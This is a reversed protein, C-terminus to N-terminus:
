PWSFYCVQTCVGQVCGPHSGVGCGVEWQDEGRPVQPYDIQMQYDWAVFAMMDLWTGQHSCYTRCALYSVNKPPKSSKVEEGSTFSLAALSSLIIILSFFLGKKM